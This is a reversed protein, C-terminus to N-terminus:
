YERDVPLFDPPITICARIEPPQLKEFRKDTSRRAYTEMARKEFM